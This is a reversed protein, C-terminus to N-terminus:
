MSLCIQVWPVFELSLFINHSSSLSLSRDLVWFLEKFSNKTGQSQKEWQQKWECSYNRWNADRLMNWHPQPEQLISVEPRFTKGWEGFISGLCSATTLGPLQCFATQCFVGPNQYWSCPISPLPHAEPPCMEEVEWPLTCCSLFLLRRIPCGTVWMQSHYRTAGLM